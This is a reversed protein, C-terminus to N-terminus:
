PWGGGSAGPDPRLVHRRNGNSTVPNKSKEAVESRGM